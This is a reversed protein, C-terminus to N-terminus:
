RVHPCVHWIFCFPKQLSLKDYAPFFFFFFAGGRGGVGGRTTTITTPSLNSSSHVCLLDRRRRRRRSQRLVIKKIASHSLVDCGNTIEEYLEGFENAKLIQFKTAATYESNQNTKIGNSYNRRIELLIRFVKSESCKGCCDYECMACHWFAKKDNEIGMRKCEDCFVTSYRGVYTPPLKSSATLIHQASCVLTRENKKRLTATIEGYLVELLIVYARKQSM